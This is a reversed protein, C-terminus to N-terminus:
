PLPEILVDALNPSKRGPRPREPRSGPVEIIGFVLGGAAAISLLAGPPDLGVTHSSRTDPVLVLTAVLAVAALVATVVFISGWWWQELMAGAVLLGLMGGPGAIGAWLGVAEARRDPPFVSTITSLTAPMILAAGVGAVVRWV